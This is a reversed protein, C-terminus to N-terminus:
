FEAVLDESLLLYLRAIKGNRGSQNLYVHEHEEWSIWITPFYCLAANM